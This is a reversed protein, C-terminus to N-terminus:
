TNESSNWQWVDTGCDWIRDYGNAKMNQVETLNEDFTDLQKKLKHKQFKVRHYFDKYNKTYFYCPDSTLKYKFGLKEYVKGTNWKKDSYSIVSKPNYKRCFYKFLKSAGGVVHTSSCFRLLEWEVNKDFRSKGFTMVALLDMGEFLGLNIKSVCAGQVHNAELFEKARAYTIEVVQTNRAFVRPSKGLKIRLRNKVLDNHYRWEHEWLHILHIGNESCKNTKELHYTKGKGNNESHWYSGNCEIATNNSPIYIDIEKGDLLDRRNCEYDIGIFDLFECVELEFSSPGVNSCKPCGEAGGTTHRSAVKTFDGHTNCTITVPTCSNVYETKSYDYIDGHIRKALDIYEERTMRQSVGWNCNKCGHGKAHLNAKQTFIGHKKCIIEVITEAQIKKPLNEYSYRNGHSELFKCIWQRKTYLTAGNREELYCKQCGHGNLASSIVQSFNGHKKCLFTVKENTRRLGNWPLPSHNGEYKSLFKNYAYQRSNYACQSHRKAQRKAVTVRKGCEACVPPPDGNLFMAIAVWDDFVPQYNEIIKKCTEKNNKRYNITYAKDYVSIVLILCVKWTRWERM